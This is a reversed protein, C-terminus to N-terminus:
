GILKQGAANHGAAANLRVDAAAEKGEFYSTGVKKERDRSSVSSLEKMHLAQYAAIKKAIRGDPDSLASARKGVEAVWGLCFDNAKGSKAGRSHYSPLSAVYDTRAKVLQRILVDYMYAAIETYAKSGLFSWWGKNTPNPGGPTWLVNCGNVRAIMHMLSNEWTMFNVVSVRSRVDLMQVDAADLGMEDIGHKAMLATAQRMANECEQANGRSDRAMALCKQIKDLIRQEVM